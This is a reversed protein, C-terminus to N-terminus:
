YNMYDLKPIKNEYNHKHAQDATSKLKRFENNIKNLSRYLCIKKLEYGTSNVVNKPDLQKRFLDYFDDITLLRRQGQIGKQLHPSTQAEACSCRRTGASIRSPTAQTETLPQLKPGSATIFNATKEISDEDGTFAPVREVSEAQTSKLTEVALSTTKLSSKGCPTAAAASAPACSSLHGSCSPLSPQEKAVQAESELHILEMKCKHKFKEAALNIKRKEHKLEETKLDIEYGSTMAQVAATLMDDDATNQGRSTTSTRGLVTIEGNDKAAKKMPQYENFPLVDASVGATEHAGKEAEKKPAAGQAAKLTETERKTARDDWISNLGHIPLVPLTNTTNPASSTFGPSSDVPRGMVHDAIIPTQLDSPTSSVSDEDDSEGDSEVRVYSNAVPVTMATALNTADSLQEYKPATQIFDYNLDPGRGAIAVRNAEGVVEIMAELEPDPTMRGEGSQNQANYHANVQKQIQYFKNPLHTATPPTAAIIKCTNEDIDKLIEVFEEIVDGWIDIAAAKKALFADQHMTSDARLAEVMAPTWKM